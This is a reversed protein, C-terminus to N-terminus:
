QGFPTPLLFDDFTLKDSEPRGLANSRKLDDFALTKSTMNVWRSFRAARIFRIQNGCTSALEAM